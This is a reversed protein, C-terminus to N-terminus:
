SGPRCSLPLFIQVQRQNAGQNFRWLRASINFHNHELDRYIDLHGESSSGSGPSHMETERNGLGLVGRGQKQQTKSSTNEGTRSLHIAPRLHFGLRFELSSQRPISKGDGLTESSTRTSPLPHLCPAWGAWTRQRTKRRTLCPDPAPALARGTM